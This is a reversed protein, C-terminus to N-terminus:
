ISFTFLVFDLRLNVYFATNLWIPLM